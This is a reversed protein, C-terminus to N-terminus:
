ALHGAFERKGLNCVATQLIRTRALNSAARAFCNSFALFDAFADSKVTEHESIGGFHNYFSLSGEHVIMESTHVM